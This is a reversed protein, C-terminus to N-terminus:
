QQQVAFQAQIQTHGGGPDEAVVNVRYILKSSGPIIAGARMESAGGESIDEGVKEIQIPTANDITGTRLSVGFPNDAETANKIFNRRDLPSTDPYGNVQPGELQAKVMALGAEAASFNAVYRVSNKTSQQEDRVRDLAAVAMASVILLLMVTMLLAIGEESRARAAPDPFSTKMVNEESRM